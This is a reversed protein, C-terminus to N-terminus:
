KQIFFEQTVPGVSQVKPDNQRGWQFPSVLVRIPFKARAPIKDFTLTDGQITAPGSVMFYQVPLNSSATAALKIPALNQSQQDPIKPSDLTQAQGDKNIINLNVHAPHEAPRFQDNGLSYAVITPEWPNGQPLLPGARPCVRFTDPGTQVLGGSNVRYLITTGSNELKTDPPYYSTDKDGFKAHEIHDVYAAQVQFTGADDLFKPSFVYMRADSQSQGDKVFGIQQPKKALQQAMHNQVATALEEDLYWLARKPDGQYDAYAVPKDDPKGLTDPNLLWGSETAVPKLSVPGDLPANDPIRAAVAKKLFLSVIGISDDSVDCHGCGLDVYYGYLSDPSHTRAGTIRAGGDFANMSVNHMDWNGYEFWESNVDFIPIGEPGDDKSGTKFPTMALIRSPDWKYIHWVFSGASSHGVPMLPAYKIEPYGSETALADLAKQLDEGASKPDEPGKPYNPNLFIDLYSRKPHDPNKDDDSGKDHGSFILVIGLGNEACAARFAPREFLPEELMNQCAVVLGRVHPCDPPVWLYARRGELSPIPVSWQWVAAFAGPVAVLVLLACLSLSRLMFRFSYIITMNM